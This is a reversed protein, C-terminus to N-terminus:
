IKAFFTYRDVGRRPVKCITEIDSFGVKNLWEAIWTDPDSGMDPLLKHWHFNIENSQGMEFILGFNTKRSFSTMLHEAYELGKEMIIHHIVSLSITIDTSPIQKIIQEDYLSGTYLAFNEFGNLCLSWQATMVKIKSADMGVSFCGEECGIRLYHGESCGYDSLSLCNSKRIIDRIVLDREMSYRGSSIQKNEIFVPQYTEINGLLKVFHDKAKTLSDKKAGENLLYKYNNRSGNSKPTSITKKAVSSEVDEKLLIRCHHLYLDMSSIVKELEKSVSQKTAEEKIGKSIVALTNKMKYLSFNARTICGIRAASVIDDPDYGENVSSWNEVYTDVVEYFWAELNDLNPWHTGAAYNPHIMRGVDEGPFGTGVTAWDIAVLGNSSRILNNRHLDSHCLVEPLRDSLKGFIENVKKETLRIIEKADDVWTDRMNMKVLYDAIQRASTLSNRFQSMKSRYFWDKKDGVKVIKNFDAIAKAAELYDIRRWPTGKDYHYELIMVIRDENRDIALARPFKLAHGEFLHQNEYFLGEREWYNTESEFTYGKKQLVKILLSASRINSQNRYKVAAEYVVATSAGRAKGEVDYYAVSQIIPAEQETLKRIAAEILRTSPKNEDSIDVKRKKNKLNLDIPSDDNKVVWFWKNFNISNQWLTHTISLNYANGKGLFGAKIIFPQKEANGELVEMMKREQPGSRYTSVDKLQIWSEVTRVMLWKALGTKVPAHDQGSVPLMFPLDLSMNEQGLSTTQILKQMVAVAQGQKGLAHLTRVLTFVVPASETGQNYLNILMQAAALLLKAKKSGAHGAAAGFVEIQEAALLYNLAKVYKETDGSVEISKCQEMLEDTWPLKALETKWLDIKPEYTAVAEDYLWGAEKAAGRQSQHIAILNLLYPDAGANADHETLINAGPVYEYLIYGFGAAVEAFDRSNQGSLAILLLPKEEKVLQQAGKLAATEEGNVDIKLLGVEPRGEFEWWADLTVLNVEDGQGDAVITSEEPTKGHKLVAKGPTESVARGIVELQEFGNELKSMELHRRALSGAEFAYVKGGPGVKKAMPLAYVGFGAGVDVVSMGPKLYDRVFQLEPEYWQEQELLVYPTLMNLDAPTCITVDDKTEIKWTKEENSDVSGNGTSGKVPNGNTEPSLTGNGNANIDGSAQQAGNGSANAVAEEKEVASKKTVSVGAEVAIHDRWEDDASEWGAVRQKWMERFAVALHAGFREGDCLASLRVRERLGARLEALAEKDSALAVAKAIYDERSGTVMEPLGANMLHTTSHRGAFTPGPLTVVPVGMWLAECTSLGGSYPWPDLAIDVRNYADLLEPHPSMGEFILRERAIGASEMQSIISDTFMATDYQKSKLFLRSDPVRHMIEAWKEILRSNVKTPNNFCGFTIYGKEEAPLPGVEPAYEPPLFCIYDDPMRILKETYCPEEGEPSEHWDTILYDMARLGSTNFLGGVWKVIVPAPEMAVTKLRNYASHGSLEVLIDVEDDRIMQGVVEDSYGVIPKWEDSAAHIRKTILDNINNNTYCIIEFQDDPLNELAETIMWGVPHRFFGGSIFGVRLKRDPSKDAPVPREPRIEPAFHRDWEM